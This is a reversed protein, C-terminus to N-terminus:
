PRTVETSRKGLGFTERLVLLTGDPSVACFRDGFRFPGYALPQHLQWPKGVAEGTELLVSWVVGSRSACLLKDGEALCVGTVPGYPVGIRWQPLANEGVCIFTGDATTLLVKGGAAVPGWQLAAPLDMTADLQLSSEQFAILQHQQDVSWIRRGAPVLDSCLSSELNASRELVLKRSDSDHRISFLTRHGDYLVARRDDTVAPKFWQLADRCRTAPLFTEAAPDNKEPNLLAVPGHQFAVLWRSGFPVPPAALPGGVQAKKLAKDESWPALWLRGRSSNSAFVGYESGVQGFEFVEIESEGDVLQEAPLVVHSTGECEALQNQDLKFLTGSATMNWLRERGAAILPQAAAPKGLAVKLQLRQQGADWRQVQVGSTGDIGACIVGDPASLRILPQDVVLSDELRKVRPLSDGKAPEVVSLGHGGAWIREAKVALFTAPCPAADQGHVIVAGASHFPRRRDDPDHRVLHVRGDTSAVYLMNQHFVPATTALGDIPISTLRQFRDGVRLVHVQSQSQDLTELVFVHDASVLPAVPTSGLEHGVYFRDRICM